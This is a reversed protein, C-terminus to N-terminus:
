KVSIQLIINIIEEFYFFYFLLYVCSNHILKHLPCTLIFTYLQLAKLSFSKLWTQIGKLDKWTKPPPDKQKRCSKGPEKLKKPSELNWLTKPCEKLKKSTEKSREPEKLNRWIMMYLIDLVLIVSEIRRLKNM